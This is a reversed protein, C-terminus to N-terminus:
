DLVFGGQINPNIEHDYDDMFANMAEEHSVVGDKNTDLEATIDKNDYEYGKITNESAFYKGNSGFVNFGAEEYKKADETSISSFKNAGDAGIYEGASVDNEDEDNNWPNQNTMKTGYNMVEHKTIVGDGDTDLIAGSGGVDKPETGPNTPLLGIKKPMQSSPEKIYPLTNDGGDKPRINKLLDKIKDVITPPIEIDKNQNNFKKDFNFGGEPILPCENNINSIPNETPLDNLGIGILIREDHDFINEFLDTAKETNKGTLNQKNAVETKQGVSLNFDVM